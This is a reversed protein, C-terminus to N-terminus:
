KEIQRLLARLSEELPHLRLAERVAKRAEDPKGAQLLAYIYNHHVAASRVGRQLATAFAEAAKGPDGAKLELDGLAEVAETGQPDAAMAAAYGQRADQLDGQAASLHGLQISAAALKPDLGRAKQFAERASPAERAQLRALGLRLWDDAKPSKTLSLLRGYVAAAEHSMKKELYLDALLRLGGEDVTNLRSALELADIAEGYKRQAAEMQAWALLYKSEEPKRRALAKYITAADGSKGSRVRVFALLELGEISDPAVRLHRLAEQEALMWDEKQVHIRALSLADPGEPDLNGARRFAALAEGPKGGMLLAHGLARDVEATEGKLEIAKRYARAAGAWRQCQLCSHGLSLWLQLSKGDAATAKEFRDAAEAYRGEQYAKEGLKADDQLLCLLMLTMMM